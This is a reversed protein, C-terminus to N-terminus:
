RQQSTKNASVSRRRPGRGEVGVPYLATRKQAFSGSAEPYWSVPVSLMRRTMRRGRQAATLRAADPAAALLAASLQAPSASPQNALYIAAAGGAFAAAMSSGSKSASAQRPALSRIESGPAWLAVCPGWNSRESAVDARDVGAVTLVGPAGSPHLACADELTEGAASVVALGAEVLHAVPQALEPAGRYQLSILVVAPRVAHAQLWAAAELLARPSGRGTCDAVRLSFLRAGSAVGTDRGVLIGALHTGHGHCDAGGSSSAADHVFDGSHGGALPWVRGSLARHTADVGTDLLYINVGAGLGRPLAVGDLPLERQEIRDLGWPADQAAPTCALLVTALLLALRM